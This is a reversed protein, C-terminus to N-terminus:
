NATTATHALAWDLLRLTMDIDAQSLVMPPKIKIVNHLPGDTSLLVGRGRIANVVASAQEAAPVKTDRDRVLEMGIFLGNGRVDGISEHRLQLAKLGEIFHEGLQAARRQLGEQEIVDLVALAAACSVPNGGFTNFFEMGNNFAGAIAPTTVVAAIPHGNGMPKGLVVIDPVVNHMQFAWMSAGVRGFGVQVEDAICVGGAKRVHAFASALYGEPLPVQGGCSLISEVFFGAISRGSACAEGVVRGVELAYADGADDGCHPGRYTDPSPVIHVWPACGNGGPGNFKYPSMAICNTTNGHYANDVVLVDDAGTAVRALRLALENAESGSNVFFCVSLPDPMTDALRESLELVHEHVYRTNTNLRGAQTAIARVVQEHCHGVHCVNNVLDLYPSGNSSYLFQGKGAVIHLPTDYSLSIADGLVDARKALLADVSKSPGVHVTCQGCLALQADRPALNIHSLLAESTSQLSEGNNPSNPDAARQARICESTALRAMILPFLSQQEPADLPRIADYATVLAATDELTTGTHGLAYAIAIAIDQVFAGHLCDGLDLLGTIVDGEFLVNEDNVDGHLLGSRCATLDQAAHLHLARDVAAVLGDDEILGVSARHQAARALDWAHTRRAHPHDVAQMAAHAHAILAGVAALRKPSDPSARWQAGPLLSMVRAPGLHTEVVLDGHLSAVPEPVRLGAISLATALTQELDMDAQPETSVKLVVEGIRVNVNEGSLRVPDGEIGWHDRAIAVAQELVSLTTDVSM